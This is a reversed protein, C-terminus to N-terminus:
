CVTHGRRHHNITVKTFAEICINQNGILIFFNDYVPDIKMRRWLGDYGSIQKGDEYHNDISLIIKQLIGDENRVDKVSGGLKLANAFVVRADIETFTAATNAM